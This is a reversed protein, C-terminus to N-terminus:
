LAHEKVFLKLNRSGHSKRIKHKGSKLFLLVHEKNCGKEFKGTQIIWSSLTPKMEECEAFCGLIILPM